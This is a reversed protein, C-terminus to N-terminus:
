GAPSSKVNSALSPLLATTPGVSMLLTTRKLLKRALLKREAFTAEDGYM